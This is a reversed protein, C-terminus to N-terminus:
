PRAPVVQTITVLRAAPYLLNVVAERDTLTLSGLRRVKKSAERLSLVLETQEPEVFADLLLHREGPTGDDLLQVQAQYWDAAPDYGVNGPAEDSSGMHHFGHFPVLPKCSM